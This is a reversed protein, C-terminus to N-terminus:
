AATMSLTLNFGPSESYWDAVRVLHAVPAGLVSM